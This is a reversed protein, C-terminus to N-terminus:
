RSPDCSQLSPQLPGANTHAFDGWYEFAIMALVALVGAPIAISTFIPFQWAQQVASPPFLFTAIFLCLTAIWPWAILLSVVLLVFKSALNEKWLRTAYELGVLIAPLLMLQNYPAFTPIVVITVALVSALTLHFASTQPSAARSRLCLAVLATVITIAALSGFPAPLLVDLLSRGGGTYRWYNAMAQRFEAMWGPLVLEAGGLLAAMTLGFGWLFNRRSRLDTIAWLALWAVLLFALQPKITALALLVGAVFLQGAALAAFAAAVFGAVLLSLQQLKIGQVAPFSGLTLVCLVLLGTGTRWNLTRLWLWVTATVLFVLFWAFAPRLTEFSVNVTPALVFIVYVPYAFAQQDKPDGARSADLARGYYGEQIERTIEISYPDRHHLL